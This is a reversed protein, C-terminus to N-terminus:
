GIPHNALWTLAQRAVPAAASAGYGAQDITVAM